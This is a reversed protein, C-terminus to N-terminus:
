ATLCEMDNLARMVRFVQEATDVMNSAATKPDMAEELSVVSRLIPFFADIGAKNCAAADRTVAGAFALGPKGFTKALRAVGEPAKGMATQADMRGEGTIVIDADKIYDALRTEELVLKIGSELVANTFSLFAFGLGGAAGTGPQKPDAKPFAQRALAAYRELWQDMQVIMEPTAGKQPGYVASCGLDGCLMNTVDCAIYFHCDALEPLVNKDSITKLIELGQAGYPVQRGEKDLFDYGLAQLMGVGGDNTASGGIGMIFRRCGKDMADRIMEGVGYTTTFLPNRKEAPVLTIGAAQSMEMIATHTSEIIGYRATVPEGLPGTVSIEHIVGNMGAALADVTGEGGDALPRVEVLADPYVRRIGTRVANGAEMSSLSGKFSDIAVTVKM